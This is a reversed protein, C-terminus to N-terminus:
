EDLLNIKKEIIEPTQLMDDVLQHFIKNNFTKNYKLCLVLIDVIYAMKDKQNYGNILGDVGARLSCNIPFYKYLLYRLQQFTEKENKTM